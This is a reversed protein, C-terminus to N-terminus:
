YPRVGKYNGPPNYSCVWTQSKDNCVKVACGVESTNRWVVQTYHGCRQGPQCRNSNYDYWKEEDTWAKVVDRITVPNTKRKGNSWVIASSWYLNEGYPPMGSRHKMICRSGAGLNDAWQQSYNALKNSWKLPPLHHKARTKNHSQLVGSFREANSLPSKSFEPIAAQAYTKEMSLVESRPPISFESKAVGDDNPKTSLLWSHKQTTAHEQSPKQDISCAALLLISLWCLLIFNIYHRLTKM